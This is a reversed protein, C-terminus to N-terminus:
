TEDTAIGLLESIVTFPLVFALDAIVDMKGVDEAADLIGGILEAIRGSLQEVRSQTFAKVVLQRIRTHDPPDLNLMSRTGRERREEGIQALLPARLDFKANRDNSSLGPERM